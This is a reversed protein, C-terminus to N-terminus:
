ILGGPGEMPSLGQPYNPPVAENRCKWHDWMGKLEPNKLPVGPEEPAGGRFDGLRNRDLVCILEGCEEQRASLDTGWARGTRCEFCDGLSKGM